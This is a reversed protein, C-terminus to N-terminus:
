RLWIKQSAHDLLLGRIRPLQARVEEVSVPLYNAVGDPTEHGRVVAVAIARQLETRTEWDEIVIRLTQGEDPTIPSVNM